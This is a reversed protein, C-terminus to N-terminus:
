QGEKKQAAQIRSVSHLSIRSDPLEEGKIQLDHSIEVHPESISSPTKLELFPANVIKEDSKPSLKGRKQVNSTSQLDINHVSSDRSYFVDKEKRTFSASVSQGGGLVNKFEPKQPPIKDTDRVCESDTEHTKDSLKLKDEANDISQDEIPGNGAGQDIQIESVAELDRKERELLHGGSELIDRAAPKSEVQNSSIKPRPTTSSSKAIYALPLPVQGPKGFKAANPPPALEGEYFFFAFDHKLVIKILILDPILSVM